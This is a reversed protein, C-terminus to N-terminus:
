YSGMEKYQSCFHKHLPWNEGQCTSNCYRAHKCRACVFKLKAAAVAGCCFCGSTMIPLQSGLVGSEKTQLTVRAGHNKLAQHQPKNVPWPMYVDKGIRLAVQQGLGPYPQVKVFHPSSIAPARSVLVPSCVLSNMATQQLKQAPTVSHVLDFIELMAALDTCSAAYLPTSVNIGQAFTVVVMLQSLPVDLAKAVTEAMGPLLIRVSQHQSDPDHFSGILVRGGSKCKLLNLDKPLTSLRGPRQKALTGTSLKQASRSKLNAAAREFAQQESMGIKQLHRWSIPVNHHPTDVHLGLRPGPTCAPFSLNLAHEILQEPAWNGVEKGPKYAHKLINSSYEPHVQVLM